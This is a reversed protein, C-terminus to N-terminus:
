NAKDLVIKDDVKEVKYEKTAALAQLLVDLNDNPLTGNLTNVLLAPDAVEVKVGYHLGIMRIVESLPTNDFHMKNDMWATVDEPNVMQRVLEDGKLVVDDGPIMKMERGHEDLLTVSGEQLLVGEDGPQSVVNFKTGTVIVDFHDTHVIFRDKNATKTVCFYAEGKLWVERDIGQAWHKGYTFSSNANLMVETGDPLTHRITQGYTTNVTTKSGKWYKDLTAALFVVAVAAAASVWVRWSHWQVKFIRATQETTEHINRFLRDEAAELQAAPVPMEDVDLRKLLDIASDVLAKSPLDKHLREEWMDVAEPDTKYYWALFSEDTLLDEPSQLANMDM